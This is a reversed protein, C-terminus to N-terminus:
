QNSINIEFSFGKNQDAYHCNEIAKRLNNLTDQSHFSIVNEGQIINIKYFSQRDQRIFEVKINNM